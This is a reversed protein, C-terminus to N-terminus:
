QDSFAAQLVRHVVRRRMLVEVRRRLSVDLRRLTSADVRRPTSADACRRTWACVRRHTCCVSSQQSDLKSNGDSSSVKLGSLTSTVETVTSMTSPAPASHRLTSGDVQAPVPQYDSTFLNDNNNKPLPALATNKKPFLDNLSKARRKRKSRMPETFSQTLDDNEDNQMQVGLSCLVNAFLLLAALAVILTNGLRPM